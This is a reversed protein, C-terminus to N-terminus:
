RRASKRHKRRRQAGPKHTKEANEDRGDGGDASLDEPQDGDSGNVQVEPVDLGEESSVDETQAGFEFEPEVVSIEEIEPSEDASTDATTFSIEGVADEETVAEGGPTWVQVREESEEEDWAEYGPSYYSYYQRYLGGPPVDNLVAGLLRIPLRELVDLKAETTERDTAGTRVVLLMSGTLTGMALPDVGATLPPTDLLVVDYSSRLQLLLTSMEQSQILEPGDQRRTGCGIRDVMEYMTSQIIQERSAQGALYDTLGPKRAGGFLRHLVGRRVDGDIVLTRRGLDAFALALNSTVFSKGDEPSTSSITVVVPGASGYAHLLNLRIVRFAEVLQETAKIAQGRRGAVHPITGIIPLGLEESLQEPYKFRPDIRDLVLAAGVAGMFSVMFALIFLRPKQSENIPRQPAVAADLIRVDPISSVAALRAEEYRAQLMTFLNAAIAVRRELRAEDILRPPIESLEDSASAILDDLEREREVVEAVLSRVLTPITRRELSELEDKLQQIPPYEDTYRYYLTRLEARKVTLEDLVGLLESAERVAPIVELAAVSFEVTPDRALVEELAERDRRLQESQVKLDFYGGFAPATTQQLGPTVPTAPSSPLTITEVRFNELAAEAEALQQAALDLQEDLIETVEELKDSKLDAAVEVYREGIANLTRAIRGPSSGRLSLRLFSGNGDLDIGLTRGLRTARDRPNGVGFEIVRGATLEEAPPIWVFGFQQGVSDGVAGRQVVLEDATRLEFGEGDPTVTLKYDGYAAREYSDALRFDEFVSANAPDGRSLYLRMDLVAHELVMYSTLLNVWAASELLETQRIPGQAAEGRNTREIWLTAQAEYQPTVFRGAAVGAASGLITVLIILWKYRWLAVAYRRWDFGPQAFTPTVPVGEWGTDVAGAPQIEGAGTVDEPKAPLNDSM